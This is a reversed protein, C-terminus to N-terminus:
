SREIETYPDWSDDDEPEEDKARETDENNEEFYDSERKRVVKPFIEQQVKELEEYIFDGYPRTGGAGAVLPALEGSLKMEYLRQLFKSAQKDSRGVLVFLSCVIDSFSLGYEFTATKAQIYAQRNLQITVTRRAPVQNLVSKGLRPFRNTNNLKNRM